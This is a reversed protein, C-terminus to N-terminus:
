WEREGVISFSPSVSQVFRLVPEWHKLDIGTARHVEILADAAPAAIDQVWTELERLYRALDEADAADPDSEGSTALAGEVLHGIRRPNLDETIYPM